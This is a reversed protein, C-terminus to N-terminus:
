ELPAAIGLVKTVYAGGFYRRAFNRLAVADPSTKWKALYDDQAHSAFAPMQSGEAYLRMAREANWAIFERTLPNQGPYTPDLEETALAFALSYVTLELTGFVGDQVTTGWLGQKVLDVGVESGNTFGVWEELVYTPTNNWYKAAEVLHPHWRSGRLSQPVRPAVDALKIAPEVVLTARHQLVYFGNAPKGTVNYAFRLHSAIGHTTEHGWRIRDNPFKYQLSDFSPHLHRLIDMLATGWGTGTIQRQDPFDFFFVHSGPWPGESAGAEPGSPAGDGGGADPATVSGSGTGVGHASRDATPENPSSWSEPPSPIGQGSEGGCAAVVFIAGLCTALRM